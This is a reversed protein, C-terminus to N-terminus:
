IDFSIMIAYEPEYEPENERNRPYISIGSGEIHIPEGENNKYAKEEIIEELQQRYTNIGLDPTLGEVLEFLTDDCYKLNYRVNEIYQQKGDFKMWLDINSYDEKRFRIRDENSSKPDYLFGYTELYNGYRELAKRHQVTKNCRLFIISLLLLSVYIIYFVKRSPDFFEKLIKKMM